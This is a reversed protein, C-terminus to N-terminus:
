QSPHVEHMYWASAFYLLRSHGFINCLADAFYEQTDMEAEYRTGLVYYNIHNCMLFSTAMMVIENVGNNYHAITCSHHM